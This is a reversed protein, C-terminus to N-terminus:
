EIRNTWARAKGNGIRTAGGEEDGLCPLSQLILPSHPHNLDPLHLWMAGKDCHTPDPFAQERPLPSLHLDQQYHVALPEQEPM